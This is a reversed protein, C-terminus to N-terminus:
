LYEVKNRGNEKARYLADDARKIMSNINENKKYVSVGFSATKHENVNFSFSEIEKRLSQALSLIGDLNTEICIIMFEEGGWRGVIDTKRSNLKLIKSFEILFADGMQHGYTDNVRKFYDIDILIVGFTSLTRSSRNLEDNLVEDIKHRNYLGTLKDTNALSELEKNKIDITKNAERLLRNALTIKRMWYLSVLLILFSVALIKWVLSYDIGKEYTINVLSTDLVRKQDKTISDVAKQMIIYLMPNSISTAISQNSVWDIKGTIKLDFLGHKSIAYGIALTTDIFGFAKGDSILKLGDVISEVEILDINPYKNKLYEGVSDGKISVLKKNLISKFDDIFRESSKTALVYNIEVLPTTFKMYSKRNKIEHALSLVDCKKEKMYELSQNWSNTQVLNFKLGLNKSFQKYVDAALGSHNGNKDIGDYPMWNPAVCLNLSEKRILFAEEKPTLEIKNINESNFILDKAKVNINKLIGIREYTDIVQQIKNESLFGLPYVNPLIVNESRKAEFMLAEKTKNQTNYKKLILDVVEEKHDLAYQWGKTSAEKFKKVIEPNNKAYDKYTTVIIGNFETGYNNVDIINYPIKRKELEYLENIIYIQIADVKGSIFDEIDFTHPIFNIDDLAVNSGYFMNEIIVNGKYKTTAM